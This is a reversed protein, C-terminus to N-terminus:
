LAVGNDDVLMKKLRHIDDQMKKEAEAKQKELREAAKRREALKDPNFMDDFAQRREIEKRTRADPSRMKLLRDLQQRNSKVKNAQRKDIAIPNGDGDVGIQVANAKAADNMQRNFDAFNLHKNADLNAIWSEVADKAKELQENLDKQRKAGEKQVNDLQAQIRAKKDAKEAQEQERMAAEFAKSDSDAQAEVKKWWADAAKKIEADKKRKAEAEAKAKAEADRKAKEAARKEDAERLARLKREKEEESRRLDENVEYEEEVGGDARRYTRKTKWASVKEESLLEREVAEAAEDAGEEVGNWYDRGSKLIGFFQSMANVAKGFASVLTNGLWNAFGSNELKEMADLVDKMGGEATDKFADGFQRVINDWRSGIAGMLGNGTTETEKMAGNYRSLAEEVKEWIEASSAGADQMSKLESVVQPTLIGMNRLENAARGIPEGDRIFAYLRGVSHGLTEVDNGTAAAADGILTLSDKYGLAGDTMVMMQRSARAFQDLSFPPTDGLAKLDAMHAKAEDIGGILTKFQMTQTEFAFAKSMVLKIGNWAGKVAGTVVKIKSYFETWAGISAKAASKHMSAWASSARKTGATAGSLAANLKKFGESKYTTGIDLTVSSKAM